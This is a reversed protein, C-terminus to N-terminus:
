QLAVEPTEIQCRWDPLVPTHSMLTGLAGTLLREWRDVKRSAGSGDFPHGGVGLGPYSITTRM